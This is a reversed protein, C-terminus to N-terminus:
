TPPDGVQAVDLRGLPQGEFGPVGEAVEVHEHVVGGYGLTPGDVVQAEVIEVLGHPDVELRGHPHRHGQEEIARSRQVV